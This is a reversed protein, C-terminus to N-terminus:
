TSASGPKPSASAAKASNTSAAGASRAPAKRFDAFADQLKDYDALDLETIVEPAQGTLLAFLRVEIDADTGGGRKSDLEDRVKPRRMELRTVAPHPSLEVPFDLPITQKIKM